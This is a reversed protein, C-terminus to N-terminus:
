VNQRGEKLAVNLFFELNDAKDHDNRVIMRAILNLTEPDFASLQNAIHQAVEMEHLTKM